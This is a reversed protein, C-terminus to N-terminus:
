IVIKKELFYDQGSVNWRVRVRWPGSAFKSVDLAQTGDGSLELTLQRDLEAANARYFTIKGSVLQKAQDAPLTFIIKRGAADFQIKAGCKEARAVADIQDQFKLEQEYYNDSVLTERHVSAIVIVVAIGIFFATFFVIIGIPWFNRAPKM